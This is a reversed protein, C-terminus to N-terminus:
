AAAGAKRVKRTLMWACIVCVGAVFIAAWPWPVDVLLNPRQFAYEGLRFVSVPFALIRWQQERLLEPLVTGFVSNVTLVMFVAIAAFRQSNFVSSSALVALTCPVSLALSFLMIPLPYYYTSRVTEVTASFGWHLLLLFLAPFATLTLGLLVLTMVKGLTYDLWSLPKSFYVEVLNYRFDNCILGSGAFITMIVVLPSQFRIFGFFLDQDVNLVSVNRIADAVPNDPLTKAANFTYIYIARFGTHVITPIMMVWFLRSKTMIRWEQCVITWWRFRRRVEGDYSRYTQEYIPM